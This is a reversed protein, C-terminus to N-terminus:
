VSAKIEAIKEHSRITILDRLEAYCLLFFQDSFLGTQRGSKIESSVKPFNYLLKEWPIKNHLQLSCYVFGEQIIKKEM